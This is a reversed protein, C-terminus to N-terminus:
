AECNMRRKSVLVILAAAVLLAGAVYFITTGIGGTSPLEIGTKNIIQIGGNEYVGDAVTANNNESIVVERDDKLANYGKPAETERLYYTGADLGKINAVGAAIETVTATDADTAVRYNGDGLDVLAIKETKAENYLEFKAGDIVKADSDTKVVDFEYTKTVTKVPDTELDNEEGYVLKVENTNGTVATVANENLVASYTVTVVTEATITDLYEKTFVLEFDCGDEAGYTVTYNAADISATVNENLTLGDSLTDHLVYNEAGPQLTVTIEYNVTDGINVDNEKTEADEEIINKDVSPAPNKDEIEVTPNTTDLSCITGTTSDVLYYGLSLGTFEVTASDALKTETPAIKTADAQAYAIAAKAFEAADAGDVIEVYGDADVTVFATQTAVFDKWAEVVTYSYRNNEADFSQLDFIQYISYTQGDTANTVTIKGDTGIAFAMVSMALVMLVSLVVAMSKKLNKM